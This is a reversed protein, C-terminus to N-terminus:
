IQDHQCHNRRMTGGIGLLSLSRPAADTGRTAYSNRHLLTSLPHIGREAKVCFEQRWRHRSRCDTFGASQKEDTVAKSELRGWQKMERGFTASDM